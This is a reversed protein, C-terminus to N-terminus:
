VVCRARRAIGRLGPSIGCSKLVQWMYAAELGSTMRALDAVTMREKREDLNAITRDPFFSLVPQDLELKHDKYRGKVRITM